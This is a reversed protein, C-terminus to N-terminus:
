LFDLCVILIDEIRTTKEKKRTHVIMQSKKVRKLIQSIKNQERNQWPLTMVFNGSCFVKACCCITELFIGFM